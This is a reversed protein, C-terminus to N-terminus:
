PIPFNRFFESARCRLTMQHGQFKPTTNFGVIFFSVKGNVLQGDKPPYSMVFRYWGLGLGPNKNPKGHIKWTFFCCWGNVNSRVDHPTVTLGEHFVVSVASSAKAAFNQLKLEPQSFRCLNKRCNINKPPLLNM